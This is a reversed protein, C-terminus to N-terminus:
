QAIGASVTYPGKLTNEILEIVYEVSLNPYIFGGPMRNLEAVEDFDQEKDRVWGGGIPPQIADYGFLVGETDNGRGRYSIEFVRKRKWDLKIPGGRRVSELEQEICLYLVSDGRERILQEFQDSNSIEKRDPETTTACWLRDTEVQPLTYAMQAVLALALSAAVIGIRRFRM